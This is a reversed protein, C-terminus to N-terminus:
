DLPSNGTGEKPGLEEGLTIDYATREKREEKSPEVKTVKGM